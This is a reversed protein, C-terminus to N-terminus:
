SGVKVEIKSEFEIDGLGRIHMKSKTTNTVEIPKGAAMAGEVVEKVVESNTKDQRAHRRKLAAAGAVAAGIPILLLLPFPDDVTFVHYDSTGGNSSVRTHRLVYKSATDYVRTYYAFREGEGNWDLSFSGEDTAEFRSDDEPIEAEISIPLPVFLSPLSLTGAMLLSGGGSSQLTVNIATDDEADRLVLDLTFNDTDM